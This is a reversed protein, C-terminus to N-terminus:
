LFTKTLTFVSSAADTLTIVIDASSVIRIDFLDTSVETVETPQHLVGAAQLASDFASAIGSADHTLVNASEGDVTVSAIDQTTTNQQISYLFNAPYIRTESGAGASTVKYLRKQAQKAVIVAKSEFQNLYVNSGDEDVLVPAANPYQTYFDTVEQPISFSM